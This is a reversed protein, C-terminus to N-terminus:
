RPPRGRADGRESSGFASARMVAHAFPRVPLTAILRAEELPQSEENLFRVVRDVPNATFMHELADRLRAPDNVALRLFVTDLWRHRARRHLGRPTRGQVLDAALAQADRRMLEVGYGTSAKVLNAATGVRVVNAAGAAGSRQAQHGRRRAGLPLRGAEAPEARWANAGAATDLYSTLDQEVGAPPEATRSLVTLEVLAEHDNVPLVYVFRLQRHQPVRFDMLIVVSADFVPQDTRVRWGTFHLWADAAGAPQGIGVSDFVLGAPVADGDIYVAGYDCDVATVSGQRRTGLGALAADIREALADGDLVTYSHERLHLLQDGRRGAVRVSRFRRATTGCGSSCRDPEFFAWARGCTPHDLSDVLLVRCDLRTNSLAEILLSGSLGAGIVVVPDSM